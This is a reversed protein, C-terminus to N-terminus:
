ETIFGHKSDIDSEIDDLLVNEARKRDDKLIKLATM